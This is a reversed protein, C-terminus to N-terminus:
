IGSYIIVCPPFFIGQLREGKMILLLRTNEYEAGRPNSNESTLNSIPNESKEEKAGTMETMEEPVTVTSASRGNAMM